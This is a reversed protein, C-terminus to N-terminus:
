RQPDHVQLKSSWTEYNNKQPPTLIRTNGFFLPFCGFHITFIISFGIFITIQPSFGNNKSVDM